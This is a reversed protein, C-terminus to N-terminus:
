NRWMRYGRRRLPLPCPRPPPSPLPRALVSHLLQDLACLTWAPTYRRPLRRQASAARHPTNADCHLPACTSDSARGDASRQTTATVVSCRSHRFRQAQTAVPTPAPAPNGKVTSAAASLNSPLAIRIAGATGSARVQTPLVLRAGALSAPAGATSGPCRRLFCWGRLVPFCSRACNKPFNCPRRARVQRSRPCRCAYSQRHRQLTKRPHSLHRWPTASQSQFPKRDFQPHPFLCRSSRWRASSRNHPARRHRLRRRFQLM